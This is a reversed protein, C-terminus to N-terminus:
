SRLSDAMVWRGKSNRVFWFRWGNLQYGAVAVGAPSLGGYVKGDVLLGEEVVVAKVVRGGRFAHELETGVPFKVGESEWYISPKSAATSPKAVLNLGLLDRIVDAETVAENARRMTIEKYSDFDIEITPM